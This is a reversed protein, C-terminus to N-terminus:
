GSGHMPAARPPGELGGVHVESHVAWWPVPGGRSSIGTSATTPKTNTLKTHQITYIMKKENRSIIESGKKNM